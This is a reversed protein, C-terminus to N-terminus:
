HGFSTNPITAEDAVGHTGDVGLAVLGDCMWKKIM